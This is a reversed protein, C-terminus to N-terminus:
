RIQYIENIKYNVAMILFILLLIFGGPLFWVASQNFILFIILWLYSANKFAKLKKSTIKVRRGIGINKVIRLIFFIFFITGFFGYDALFALFQNHPSTLVSLESKNIDKTKPNYINSMKTSYNGYGFIPKESIRNLSNKYSLFRHGATKSDIDSFDQNEIRQILAIRDNSVSSAFIITILGLIVVGFKFKSSSNNILYLLSGITLILTAGLSATILIAILYIIFSIKNNTHLSYIAFFSLLWPVQDGMLGFARTHTENSYTEFEPILDPIVFSLIILLVNFLAFYNLHNIYKELKKENTNISKFDIFILYMLLIQFHVSFIASAIDPYFVFSTISHTIIFIWFINVSKYKNILNIKLILVNFTVKIFILILILDSINIGLDLISLKINSFLKSYLLIVGLYFTINLKDRQM